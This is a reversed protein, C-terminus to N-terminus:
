KHDMQTVLVYQHHINPVYAAPYGYPFVRKKPQYIIIIGKLNFGRTELKAALDSHLMFYRSKHRFDGVVVCMYSRPKLPRRCLALTDAVADLFDEYDEINGLDAPDDSYRTDLGLSTREQRAKHDEKHLISWYPPSTVVLSASDALMKPLIERADGHIVDQRTAELHVKEVETYLRQKALEVYQDNLEIGIGNRENLAAAKLTSGVGLFPDLVTDGARTFLRILRTVDQFSYPAPHLREIQAHSHNRGL